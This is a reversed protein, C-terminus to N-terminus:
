TNQVNNRTKNRNDTSRAREKLYAVAQEEDYITVPDASDLNFVVIVGVEGGNSTWAMSWRSCGNEAYHQNTAHGSVILWGEADCLEVLTKHLM